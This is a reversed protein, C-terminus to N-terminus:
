LRFVATTSATNRCRKTETNREQGASCPTLSSEVEINRCRNTDSNRYKGPGCDTLDRDVAAVVEEEAATPMSNATNPSPVLGQRWDGNVLAYAEDDAMDVPYMVSITTTPTVFSVQGGASNPLTLGYFARYGPDITGSLIQQSTGVRLICGTLDVSSSTENHLEIFEHGTDEGAPNPVIESISIGQCTAVPDPQIITNLITRPTMGALVIGNAAQYSGNVFPRQFSNTDLLQLLPSRQCGPLTSSDTGGWRVCDVLQPNSPVTDNVLRVYGGSAALFGTTPNNSPLGFIIDADRVAAPPAAYSDNRLLFTGHAAVTGNLTGLLRTQTTLDGTFTSTLYEIRLNQVSLPTDNPNYLEVFESRESYVGVQIESILLNAPSAQATMFPLWSFTLLFITTLTFIQKIM